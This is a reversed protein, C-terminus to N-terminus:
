GQWQQIKKLLIYIKKEVDLSDLAFNITEAAHKQVKSDEAETDAIGQIVPQITKFATDFGKEQKTSLIQSEKMRLQRMVAMVVLLFRTYGEAVKTGHWKASVQEDCQGRRAAQISVAAALGSSLALHVGSSFYPDVFCGADGAMRFHPGAYATASYSWDTAQKIDAVIEAESLMEHIRPAEKLYEKYFSPGDLDSAKKKAFFIDQRVVIGCSLTGNHLPIAWVWGSGDTGLGLILM